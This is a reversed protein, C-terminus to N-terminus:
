KKKDKFEIKYELGLAESIKKLDKETFNDRKFKNSLNQRSQGLRTALENMSVNKRRMIMLLKEGATYDM